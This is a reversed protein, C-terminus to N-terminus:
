YYPILLIYLRLWCYYSDLLYADYESFESLYWPFWLCVRSDRNKWGGASGASWCCIELGCHAVSETPVQEVIDEESCLCSEYFDSEWCFECDQLELIYM